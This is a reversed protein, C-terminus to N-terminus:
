TAVKRGRKAKSKREALEGMRQEGHELAEAIAGEITPKRGLGEVYTAGWDVVRNVSACYVHAHAPDEPAGGPGSRDAARRLHITWGADAIAQLDALTM